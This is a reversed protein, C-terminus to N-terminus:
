LSSNAVKIFEENSCSYEFESLAVLKSPRFHEDTTNKMKNVYVDFEEALECGSSNHTEM